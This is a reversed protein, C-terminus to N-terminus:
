GGSAAAGSLAQNPPSVQTVGSSRLGRGGGFASTQIAVLDACALAALHSLGRGRSDTPSGRGQPAGGRAGFHPSAYPRGAGPVLEPPRDPAPHFGRRRARSGRLFSSSTRWGEGREMEEANKSHSPHPSRLPVSPGCDVPGLYRPDAWGSEAFVIRSGGPGMKGFLRQQVVGQHLRFDLRILRRGAVEVGKDFETETYYNLAEALKDVVTAQEQGTALGALSLVMAAMFTVTLVAKFAKRYYM